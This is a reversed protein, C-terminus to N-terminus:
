EIYGGGGGFKNGKVDMEMVIEALGPWLSLAKTQIMWVPSFVVINQAQSESINWGFGRMLM